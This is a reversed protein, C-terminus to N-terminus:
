GRAALSRDVRAVVASSGVAAVRGASAPGAGWEAIRALRGPRYTPAMTRSQFRDTFQYVTNYKDVIEWRGRVEKIFMGSPLASYTGNGDADAVWYNNGQGDNIALGKWSQDYRESEWIRWLGPVNFGLAGVLSGPPSRTLKATRDCM